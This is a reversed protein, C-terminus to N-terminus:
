SSDVAILQVAIAETEALKRGSPSQLEARVRFPGPELGTLSLELTRVPVQPQDNLYIVLQAAPPIDLNSELRVDIQGEANAIVSGDAPEAITLRFPEVESPPSEPEIFQEVDPANQSIVNIDPLDIPKANDSPKQDTYTVNGDQDVVRYIPQGVASLSILWLGALAIRLISLM